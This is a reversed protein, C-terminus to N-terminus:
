QEDDFRNNTQNGGRRASALQRWSLKSDSFTGKFLRTLPLGVAVRRFSRDDPKAKKLVNM